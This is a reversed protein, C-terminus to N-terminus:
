ETPLTAPTKTQQKKIGEKYTNCEQIERFM